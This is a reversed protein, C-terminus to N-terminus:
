DELVGQEKWIQALNASDQTALEQSVDYEEMLLQAMDEVTFDRGVLREWLFAASENLNLIKNFNVHALGEGIVIHDKGLSRLTFGAKIRM